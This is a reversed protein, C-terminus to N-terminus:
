VCVSANLLELTVELSEASFTLKVSPEAASTDIPKVSKKPKDAKKAGGRTPTKSRARKAGGRKAGSKKVNSEYLKIEGALGDKILDVRTEWTNESEDDFGKWQLLPYYM